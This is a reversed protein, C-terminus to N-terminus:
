LINMTLWYYLGNNNYLINPIKELTMKFFNISFLSKANKLLINLKSKHMNIFFM